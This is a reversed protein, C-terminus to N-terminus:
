PLPVPINGFVLFSVLFNGLLIVIMPISVIWKIRKKKAELMDYDFLTEVKLIEFEEQLDEQIEITDIHNDGYTDHATFQIETIGEHQKEQAELTQPEMEEVENETTEVLVSKEQAKEDISGKKLEKRINEYAEQTLAYVREIRSIRPQILPAKKEQKDFDTYIVKKQDRLLKKGVFHEIIEELVKGGDLGPIPIVNLLAVSLSFLFTYLIVRHLRIPFEGGLFAGLSNRPLWYPSFQVGIFVYSLKQEACIIEFDVGNENTFILTDGIKPNFEATIFEAFTMSELNIPTGNVQVIVEGETIRGENVGFETQNRLVTDIQVSNANRPTYTLGLYVNEFAFAAPTLPFYNVNITYNLGDVDTLVLTYDPINTQLYTGLTQNLDYNVSTGNVATIITSANINGANNGGQLTSYVQTINFASNNHQQWTFGTFWRHGLQIEREYTELSNKKFCTLILYDGPSVQLDTGNNMITDLAINKEEQIQTGNIQAVVDNPFLNGENFGGENQSVVNEVMVVQHTHTGSVVTAFNAILLVFLLGTLLNAWIGATMIRLRTWPSTKPSYIYREELEVFAGFGILYFVGAALLGSSQIPVEDIESAVAHCLEHVTLIIILPIIFQTFQPLSVTVGPILPAIVNEIQPAFILSYLNYIFFGVSFVMTLFAAVIGVNFLTRWIKQGHQSIKKIIKNFQKTRILILFPFLYTFTQSEKKMLRSLVYVLVWLVLSIQFLPHAVLGFLFEGFSPVM